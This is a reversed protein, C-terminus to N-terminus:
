CLNKNMTKKITIKVNINILNKRYTSRASNGKKKAFGGFKILMFGGESVYMFFIFGLDQLFVPTERKPLFIRVQYSQKPPYKCFSKNALEHDCVDVSRKKLYAL